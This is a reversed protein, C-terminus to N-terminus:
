ETKKDEKKTSIPMTPMKGDLFEKYTITGEPYYHHAPAAIAVLEFDDSVVRGEFLEMELSGSGRCRLCTAGLKIEEPMAKILGTGDCTYCNVSITKSM